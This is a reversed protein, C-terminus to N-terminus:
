RQDGHGVPLRGIGGRVPLSFRVTGTASPTGPDAIARDSATAGRVSGSVSFAAIEADTPPRLHPNADRHNWSPHVRVGVPDLRTGIRATM